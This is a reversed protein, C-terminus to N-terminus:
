CADEERAGPARGLSGRIARAITRALERDSRGSADVPPVQLRPVRSPGTVHGQALARAVLRALEPARREFRAPLRLRLNGIKLM